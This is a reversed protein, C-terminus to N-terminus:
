MSYVMLYTAYHCIRLNCKKQGGRTKLIKRKGTGQGVGVAM